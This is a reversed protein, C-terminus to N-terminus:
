NKDKVLCLEGRIDTAFGTLDANARFTFYLHGTAGEFKGTGETIRDFQTGLGSAVAEFAGVGRSTLTGHETTIVLEGTYSFTPNAPKPPNGIPTLSGDDGLFLTTGKLDGTITGATSLPGTFTTTQTAKIEKCKVNNNASNNPNNNAQIPQTRGGVLVFVVTLVVLSKLLQM